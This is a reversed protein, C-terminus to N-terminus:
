HGSGMEVGMTAANKTGTNNYTKASALGSSWLIFVSLFQRALAPIRTEEGLRSPLYYM